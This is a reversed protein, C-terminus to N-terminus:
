FRNFVFTWQTSWVMNAANESTFRQAREYVVVVWGPVAKPQYFQKDIMQRSCAASLVILM